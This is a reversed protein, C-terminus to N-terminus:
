APPRYADLDFLAAGAGEPARSKRRSVGRAPQEPFLTLAKRLRDRDAPGIFELWRRLDETSDPPIWFGTSKSTRMSLVHTNCANCALGRRCRECSHSGKPCIKHDHDIKAERGKGRAGGVIIRPNPLEKACKYCRRDQAEWIAILEILKLRHCTRLGQCRLCVGLRM